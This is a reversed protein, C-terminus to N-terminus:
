SGPSQQHQMMENMFDNFLDRDNLIQLFVEEKQQEDTTLDIDRSQQTNACAIVLTTVILGSLTATTLQKLTKMILNNQKGPENENRINMNMVVM